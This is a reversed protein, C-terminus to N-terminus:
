TILEQQSLADLETAVSAAEGAGIRRFITEAQRLLDQAKSTGGAALACRGLGALAHAEDWSGDIDRALALAQRHCDGAQSVDGRLRHLTGMENLAEVEAGRDGLDRFMALAQALAQAASAYDATMRRVGGLYILANAEGLRSGLDRYLGLAETLAQAAGAYDGTLQRVAGLNSLANAQGTPDGLDRYIGLAETLAQASGPYEGTMRRVGGLNSLVNAQGLRRGLDRFLGLAGTLAQAAGPYDGTMRRVAGLNNLANAQGLRDGVERYLGLADQHHQVADPYRGTLYKLSGLNDLVNAQGLRDGLERHIALAEALARAGPPYDGMTRWVVGVQNLANAQGLRDGSRQACQAAATHRAIADAWPGDQRLLAALSATLAVVRAPQGAATVQDLCAFLNTRETRVWALAAAPDPLAPPAAVSVAPGLVPGAPTQRALQAEAIAATEQYFDLLRRVAQDRGPAPDTAARDRAYRRILDHMRYRRYGAETLLAERHLADLHEAADTLSVGVLAAAAHVEITTGPHLGLHRLFRQRAAPLYRYSIGFAAAVSNDEATMTLMRARTETTLDALTWSTHRAHVRALLSIALPLYGALRVLEAVAPGPRARSALRLFMEQAADPPLVEVPVPVVAGPLDGLHRRSTVLVLCNGGGPLLPAVQASNAANDLVLLARQGAMRDRWLGTRGTLDDPLSRTDVGAAALLGALAAGADVPDQGPTHAHLDIFLQRDPFRDRLRHAVHVALATKGVGPMGDIAHIAVVGGPVSGAGAAMIQGLEADRGTFVAADPPLSYRVELPVPQNQGPEAVPPPQALGQAAAVFAARAQGTLGLAEALRQATHKRCTRHRGRELDSVTNLGLRASAALEEQTLEARERLQRLLGAFDAPAETV